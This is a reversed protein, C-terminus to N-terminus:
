IKVKLSVQYTRPSQFTYFTGVAAYTNTAQTYSGLSIATTSRDNFVNNVSAGLTFNGWTYSAVATGNSYGPLVYSQIAAPAVCPGTTITCASKAHQSGTFKHTYSLKLGGSRYIMGVLASM